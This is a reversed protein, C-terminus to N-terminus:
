LIVIELGMQQLMSYGIGTIGESQENNVTVGVVCLKGFIYLPLTVGTGLVMSLLPLYTLTGCLRFRLSLLSYDAECKRWKVVKFFDQFFIKHWNM